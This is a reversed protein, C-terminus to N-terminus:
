RRNKGHDNKDGMQNILRWAAARRRLPIGEIVKEVLKTFDPPSASRDLALRAKVILALLWCADLMATSARETSSFPLLAKEDATALFRRYAPRKLNSQRLACHAINLVPADLDIM